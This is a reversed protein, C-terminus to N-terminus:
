REIKFYKDVEIGFLSEWKHTGRYCHLGLETSKIKGQAFRPVIIAMHGKRAIMPNARDSRSQQPGLRHTHIDSVVSVNNDRCVGWLKTFSTSNLTVYDTHLADSQLQEYPLFGSVIRQTGLISGLLFAGSERTGMGQQRLHNLLKQWLQQKILLTNKM